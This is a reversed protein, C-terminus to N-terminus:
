LDSYLIAASILHEELCQTIQHVHGFYKTHLM